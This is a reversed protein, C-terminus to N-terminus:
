DDLGAPIRDAPVGLAELFRTLVDGPAMPDRHRDFGRMNVHLVGDPFRDAVGHAWQVALVSKGVGATGTITATVPEGRDALATLGRLHGARGVFRPLTAPLLRPVHRESRALAEACEEEVHRVETRHLTESVVDTLMPGRRLAAAGAFDQAAVLERFRLLDLEAPQVRAEYGGAHTRVCDAAGLAARLRRVVQHLSQRPQAPPAGDWVLEALEDVSVFRNPRLLLAALLVRCRGIPVPVDAGDLTVELTGLVGYRVAM